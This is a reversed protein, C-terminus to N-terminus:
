RAKGLAFVRIEAGRFAKMAKMCAKVTEGTTILDDVLLITKHYLQEPHNVAFADAVNTKRGASNQLAQQHTHRTRMVHTTDVPIGTVESLGRAIYESQNYGRQRLRKRHLPVPIIVDVGDWLESDQWEIAAQRGLVYGIQPQQGFKMKHIMDQVPHHKEFFMFAAATTGVVAETENQRLESQETRPLARLCDNCVIQQIDGRAIYDGIYRGCMACTRPYMLNLLRNLIKSHLVM